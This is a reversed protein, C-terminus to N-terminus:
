TGAAITPLDIMVEAYCVEVQPTKSATEGPELCFQGCNTVTDGGQIVSRRQFGRPAEEILGKRHPKTDIIVTPPRLHKFAPKIQSNTAKDGPRLARLAKILREQTSLFDLRQHEEILFPDM